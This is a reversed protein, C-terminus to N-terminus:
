DAGSEVNREYSHTHVFYVRLPLIASQHSVSKTHILVIWCPRWDCGQSSLLRYELEDRETPSLVPAVRGMTALGASQLLTRSVCYWKCSELPLVRSTLMSVSVRSCHFSVYRCLASKRMHMANCRKPCPFKVYKARKPQWRRYGTKKRTLQGFEPIRDRLYIYITV